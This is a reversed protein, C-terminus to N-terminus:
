SGSQQTLAGSARLAIAAVMLVSAEHGLTIWCDYEATSLLTELM